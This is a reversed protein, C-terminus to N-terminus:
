SMTQCHWALQHIRQLCCSSESLNRPTTALEDQVQNSLFQGSQRVAEQLCWLVDLHCVQFSVRHSSWLIDPLELKWSIRNYKSNNASSGPYAPIIVDPWSSPNITRFDLDRQLQQVTFCLFVIKIKCVRLHAFLLQNNRMVMVKLVVSIPSFIIQHYFQSM